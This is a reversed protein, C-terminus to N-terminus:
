ESLRDPRPIKRLLSANLDEKIKHREDDLEPGYKAELKTRNRELKRRDMRLLMRLYGLEAPTFPEM